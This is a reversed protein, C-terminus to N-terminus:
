LTRVALSRLRFSVLEAGLSQAFVDGLVFRGEDGYGYGTSPNFHRIAISHKNFAKLVKEQNYESIEDALAFQKLLAEESQKICEEVTM